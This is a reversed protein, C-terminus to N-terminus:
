LLYSFTSDIAIFDGSVTYSQNFLDVYNGATSIRGLTSASTFTLGVSTCSVRPYSTRSPTSGPLSVQITSGSVGTYTASLNITVTLVRGAQSFAGSSTIGSFSIGGTAIFAPSWTGDNFLNYGAIAYSNANVADLGAAGAQSITGLFATGYVALDHTAGGPGITLTGNVTTNGNITPATIAGTFTTTGNVTNGGVGTLTIPGASSLLIGGVASGYMSISAPTAGSAVNFTTGLFTAPGSTVGIGGGNVTVGGTTVTVGGATVTLGGATITIGNNSTVAGQLVSNGNLLATGSVSITSAVSLSGVGGTGNRLNTPGYVDLSAAATIDGITVPGFMNSSIPSVTSGIVLTGGSVLVGATYTALGGYSSNFLCNINNFTALGTFTSTTNVTLSTVTLAGLTVGGAISIGGNFTALGTFTSTTSVTLTNLTTALANLIGVNTTGNVALTYPNLADGITINGYNLQNVPLAASGVFFTGITITTNGNLTTSVPSGLTGVVFGSGTVNVTSFSNLNISAGPVETAFYISGLLARMNIALTTATFDFGGPAVVFGEITLLGGVNVAGTLAALGTTTFIGEVNVDGAFNAEGEVSLIGLVNLDGEALVLGLFNADGEVLLIGEINTDGTVGLVGNVQLDGTIELLGTLNLGGNLTTLGTVTLTQSFTAPSNVTFSAGAFTSQATVELVTIDTAKLFTRGLTVSLATSLASPMTINVLGLFESAGTQEFAGVMTFDGEVEVAGFVNLDRPTGSSGITVNGTFGITGSATLNNLTTNNTVTLNTLTLDTLIVISLNVPGFFTTTGYFNANDYVNLLDINANNLGSVTKSTYSTSAFMNYLCVKNSRTFL